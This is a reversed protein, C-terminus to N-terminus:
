DMRSMCFETLMPCVLFRMKLILILHKSIIKEVKHM